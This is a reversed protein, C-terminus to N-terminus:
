QGLFRKELVGSLNGHGMLVKRAFFASSKDIGLIDDSNLVRPGNVNQRDWVAYRLNDQVVTDKIDSELLANNLWFEEATECYKLDHIREDSLYKRCIKAGDRTISGWVLGKFRYSTNRHIKLAYQLNRIVKDIYIELINSSKRNFIHQFHFIQYRKQMFQNNTIDTVEIYNKENNNFFSEFEFFSRIPYDADSIIHFRNNDENM